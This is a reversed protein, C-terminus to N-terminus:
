KPLGSTAIRPDEPNDIVHILKGNLAAIETQLQVVRARLSLNQTAGVQIAERVAEAKELATDALKVSYEQRLDFVAVHHAELTMLGLRALIRGIM